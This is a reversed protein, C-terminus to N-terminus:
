AELSLSLVDLHGQTWSPCAEVVLAYRRAGLKGAARGLFIRYQLLRALLVRLLQIPIQKETVNIM